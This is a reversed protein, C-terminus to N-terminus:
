RAKTSRAAKVTGEGAKVLGGGSIAGAQTLATGGLTEFVGGGAECRQPTANM